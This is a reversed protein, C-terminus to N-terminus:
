ILDGVWRSHIDSLFHRALNTDISDEDLIIILLLLIKKFFTFKSLVPYISLVRACM